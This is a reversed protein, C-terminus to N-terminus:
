THRRPTAYRIGGAHIEISRWVCSGMKRPLRSQKQETTHLFLSQAHPSHLTQTILSASLPPHSVGPEPPESSLPLTLQACTVRHLYKLVGAAARARVSVSLHHPSSLHHTYKSHPTHTLSLPFSFSLPITLLDSHSPSFSLLVSIDKKKSLMERETQKKIFWM